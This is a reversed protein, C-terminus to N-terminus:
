PPCPCVPSASSSLCGNEGLSDSNACCEEYVDDDEICVDGTPGPCYWSASIFNKWNHAFFDPCQGTTGDRKLHWDKCGILQVHCQMGALARTWLLATAIVCAATALTSIRSYIKM